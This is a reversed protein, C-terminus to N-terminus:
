KLIRFLNSYHDTWLRVRPNSETETSVRLEPRQFFRPDGTVLVWSSGFLEKSDEDETEVTRALKHVSDASRRVVPFLNLYRNSVHVALVGTPKLHHFYIEFAEHTLLHIPISDSSFADVALVDLNQPSERELSLRADGLVTEVKAPTATIYSFETRALQLVMPNLEYFRFYDGARGYAALTGTGLGVVGVRVPGDQQLTSIALGVGSKPGYYTTPQMRREPHTFQEGHNITGHTLTRLNELDKPDDNDRVRMAGYFDRVMVRNGRAQERIQWILCGAFAVV